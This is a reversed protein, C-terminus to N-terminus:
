GINGAVVEDTNIGIGMDIPLRGDQVRQKNWEFLSAIMRDRGSAAIPTTLAPSPFALVAMIADGIFKDLM